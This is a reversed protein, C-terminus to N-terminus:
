AAVEAIPTAGCGAERLACLRLYRAM